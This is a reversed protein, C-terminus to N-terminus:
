HCRSPCSCPFGSDDKQLLDSFSTAKSQCRNVANYLLVVAKDVNVTFRPFSSSKLDIKGPQNLWEQGGGPLVTIFVRRRLPSFGNQQHLILVCDQSHGFSYKLFQAVGYQRSMRRPFGQANNLLGTGPPNMQEHRIDHHRFHVAPVQRFLDEAKM